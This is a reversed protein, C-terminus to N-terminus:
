PKNSSEGPTKGWTRWEVENKNIIETIWSSLTSIAADIDRESDREKGSESMKGHPKEVM